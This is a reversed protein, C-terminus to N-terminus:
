MVVTFVMMITAISVSFSITITSHRVHIDTVISTNNISVTIGSVSIIAVVSVGRTIRARGMLLRNISDTPKRCKLSFRCKVMFYKNYKPNNGYFLNLSMYRKENKRTESLSDAGYIRLRDIDEIMVPGPVQIYVYVYIAHERCSTCSFTSDHHLFQVQDNHSIDCATGDAAFPSVEDEVQPVIVGRVDHSHQGNAAEFRAAQQAFVGIPFQQVLVEHSADIVNGFTDHSAHCGNWINM